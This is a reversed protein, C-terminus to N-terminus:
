AIRLSTLEGVGDDDLHMPDFPLVADGPQEVWKFDLRQDERFKPTTSIIIRGTDPEFLKYQRSTPM